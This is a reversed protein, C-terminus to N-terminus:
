TPWPLGFKSTAPLLLYLPPNHNVPLFRRGTTRWSSNTLLNTPLQHVQPCSPVDDPKHWETKTHSFKVGKGLLSIDIRKHYQSSGTHM